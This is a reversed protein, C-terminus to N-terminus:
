AAVQRDYQLEAFLSLFESGAFGPSWRDLQIGLPSDFGPAVSHMLQQMEDAIIRNDAEHVIDPIIPPLGFCPAIARQWIRTETQKIIPASDKSPRAVDGFGSLAEPADHLLATLAHAADSKVLVWRAVHVSHEAVSYHYSVAGTYRCINSLGHAIDLINVDEPHPDFPWFTGTRTYIYNGQRAKGGSPLRELPCFTEAALHADTM